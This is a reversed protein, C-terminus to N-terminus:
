CQMTCWQLLFLKCYMCCGHQVDIYLLPVRKVREQGLKTLEGKSCGGPYLGETALAEDISREKPEKSIRDVVSLPLLPQKKESGRRLSKVLAEYREGCVNWSTGKWYADSSALPTRAGHRFLVQM